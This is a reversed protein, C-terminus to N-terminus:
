ASTRIVAPKLRITGQRITEVYGLASRYQFAWYLLVGLDSDPLDETDEPELTWQYLAVGDGLTTEIGGGLDTTKTVLAQSDPDGFRRKLMFVGGAGSRPDAVGEVTVSAELNLTKGRFMTFHNM